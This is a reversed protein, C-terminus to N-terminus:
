FRINTGDTQGDAHLLESVLLHFKVSNSIQTNKSFKVLIIPVKCTRRNVNITFDQSTTCLILLIESLITSFILVGMIHEIVEEGEFMTGNILYHPFTNYLRFPRLTCYLITRANHM